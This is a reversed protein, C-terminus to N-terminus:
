AGARVAKPLLGLRQAVRTVGRWLIVLLAPGLLLWCLRPLWDGWAAYFSGRDDLPVTALLIGQVKKYEHWRSVPLAAVKGDRLSVDWVRPLESEPMKVDPPPKAIYLLEPQLVRGDADVVASVGM